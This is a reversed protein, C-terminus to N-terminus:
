GKVKIKNQESAMEPLVLDSCFEFRSFLFFTAADAPANPGVGGDTVNWTAWNGVVGVIDSGTVFATLRAQGTEPLVQLCIVDGELFFNGDPRHITADVHGSVIGDKSVAAKFTYDESFNDTGIVVQGEAKQQTGLSGLVFSPSDVPSLPQPSSDCAATLLLASAIAYPTYTSLEM